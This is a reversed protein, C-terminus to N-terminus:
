VTGLPDVFVGNPYSLQTLANGEGRGGAVVIGEKAGKVWKMVRHNNWDSAYVSQDRDVCVYRPFNLQNLRDGQGNGGAVVTGDTEGMRYRRVEHKGVDTVYLFRQDDMTLGWCYINSIITEGSTTGCRRSWRMVRGNAYDCIILSNTEKDVIVDTPCNLQDNRDGQGNGGAVVQGSTAGSKWEVIRHNGCDAIYVTQDGDMYLGRPHDLQNLASGEGHGGAITLGNQRWTAHLPINPLAAIFFSVSILLISLSREISLFFLPTNDNSSRM